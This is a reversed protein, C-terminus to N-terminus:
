RRRRRTAVLGALGTGLLLLSAPEPVASVFSGTGVQSSPQDYDIFDCTSNFCVGGRFYDLSEMGGANTLVQGGTNYLGLTFAGTWDESTAYVAAFGSAGPVNAVHSINFEWASTAPLLTGGSTTISLGSWTDTDADYTFSGTVRTLQAGIGITVDRLTWAVPTASASTTLALLVALVTLVRRIM